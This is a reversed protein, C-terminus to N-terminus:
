LQEWCGEGGEGTFQVKGQELKQWDEETIFIIYRGSKVTPDPYRMNKLWKALHRQTNSEVMEATRKILDIRKEGDSFKLLKKM